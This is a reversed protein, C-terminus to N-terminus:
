FPVNLSKSNLPKNNPITIKTPCWCNFVYLVSSALNCFNLCSFCKFYAASLVGSLYTMYNMLKVQGLYFNWEHM